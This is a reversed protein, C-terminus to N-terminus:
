LKIAHQANNRLDSQNTSKNNWNFYRAFFHFLLCLSSIAIQNARAGSLEIQDLM